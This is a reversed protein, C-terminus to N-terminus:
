VIFCLYRECVVSPFINQLAERATIKYTECIHDGEPYRRPKSTLTPTILSQALLYYAVEDKVVFKLENGTM